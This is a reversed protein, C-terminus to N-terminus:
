HSCFDHQASTEGSALFIGFTSWKSLGWRQAIQGPRPCILGVAVGTILVATGCWSTITLLNLPVRILFWPLARWLACDIIGRGESGQM